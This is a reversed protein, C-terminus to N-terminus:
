PQANKAALALLEPMPGGYGQVVKTLKMTRPDLIMQLPLGVTGMPLFTGAPDAVVAVTDAIDFHQRWKDALAVTAKKQTADEIMLTLVRIGKAKWSAMESHLDQAEQVCSGCWEASTDLLVAHIGKSGDCDYYDTISVTGPETAGEAYGQWKLTSPVTKGQSKGFPAPPYVCASPAGGTGTATGTDTGTDTGTSTGTNAAGGAGTTTTADTGDGGSTTADAALAQEDLSLGDAGTVANCAGAAAALLAAATLWSAARPGPPLSRRPTIM